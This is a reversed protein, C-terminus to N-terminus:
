RDRGNTGWPGSTEGFGPREGGCAELITLCLGDSNILADSNWFRLVRLGLHELYATRREDYAANDAHQSGDLEVV